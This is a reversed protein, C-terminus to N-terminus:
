IVFRFRSAAGDAQDDGRVARVLRLAATGSEANSEVAKTGFAVPSAAVETVQAVEDVPAGSGEADIEDGEIREVGDVIPPWEVGAGVQRVADEIAIKKIEIDFGDFAEALADFILGFELAQAFSGGDFVFLYGSEFAASEFADEFGVRGAFVASVPDGGFAIEEADVGGVAREVLMEVRLVWIEPDPWVPGFWIAIRYIGRYFFEGFFVRFLNEEVAPQLPEDIFLDAFDLAM